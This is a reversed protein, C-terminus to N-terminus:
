GSLCRLASHSQVSLWPTQRSSCWRKGTIQDGSYFHPIVTEADEQLPRPSNLNLQVLCPQVPRQADHLKGIVTGGLFELLLILRGKRSMWQYMCDDVLLAAQM